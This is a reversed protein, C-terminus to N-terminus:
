PDPDASPDNNSHIPKKSEPTQTSSKEPNEQAPIRTRRPDMSFKRAEYVGYRYILDLIGGVVAGVIIGGIILANINSFFRNLGEGYGTIGIVWKGIRNTMFYIPGMTFPNTIFQLGATIPLNARFLLAAGLALMLQIGFFPLFSIISGAYFAPTCHVRKFSWLYPRRQAVSPFWKLFPYRQFNSKRPMWRLLRKVRRRRAHRQQRFKEEEFTM